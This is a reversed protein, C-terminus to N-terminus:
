TNCKNTKGFKTTSLVFLESLLFALISGVVTGLVLWEGACGNSPTCEMNYGYIIFAISALLTSVLGFIGFYHIVRAIIYQYPKIPKKYLIILHIIAALLLLPYLLIVIEM